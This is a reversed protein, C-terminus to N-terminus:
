FIESLLIKRLQPWFRDWFGVNNEAWKDIFEKNENYLKKWDVGVDRVIRETFYRHGLGINIFYNALHQGEIYADILWRGYMDKDGTSEVSFDYAYRTLYILYNKAALGVIKEYEDNADTEGANFANVRFKMHEAIGPRVGPFHPRKGSDGDDWEISRIQRLSSKPIIEIVNGRETPNREALRRLKMLKPEDIHEDSVIIRKLKKPPNLILKRVRWYGIHYATRLDLTILSKHDSIRPAKWFRVIPINLNSVALHNVKSLHEIVIKDFNKPIDIGNMELRILSKSYAIIFKEIVSTSLRHNGSLNVSRVDDVAHKTVERLESNDLDLSQLNLKNETKLQQYYYPNLREKIPRTSDLLTTLEILGFIKRPCKGAHAQLSLLLISIILFQKMFVEILLPM